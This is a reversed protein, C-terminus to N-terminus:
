KLEVEIPRDLEAMRTYSLKMEVTSFPYDPLVFEDCKVTTGDELKRSYYSGENLRYETGEPDRYDWNFGSQGVDPVAVTLRVNEGERQAEVFRFGEPLNEADGTELDFKVWEKGKDLWNAGMIHLTYPGKGSFYPSELYYYVQGNEEDGGTSILIGSSGSRSGDEYRSGKADTLYFQLGKCWATNDPDFSVKLRAHTPNIELTELCLRQSDVEVWKNLELTEGPATLRPDLTLDFTFEAVINRAGEPQPDGTHGEVPAEASEAFDRIGEVQCRVQFREPAQYGENFNANFDAMEGPRATGSTLGYGHLGEGDPGLLNASLLYHDFDGGSLTYFFNIQMQDLILYELKLTVGNVTQEQGVYQIYDNEVAAKLSPSLAVAAALDKLFPVRKCAMAFPVSLNVMLAFAAAMGGLSALAAGWDRRRSHRRARRAAREVSGDLAAPVGQADLQALLATFEENRNM